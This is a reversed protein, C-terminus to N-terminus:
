KIITNGRVFIRDARELDAQTINRVDFREKQVNTM